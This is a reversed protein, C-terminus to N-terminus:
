TRQYNNERIIIAMINQKPLMGNERRIPVLLVKKVMSDNRPQRQLVLHQLVWYHCDEMAEM